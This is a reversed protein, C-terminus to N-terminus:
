LFSLLPSDFKQREILGLLVIFASAFQLGALHALYWRICLAFDRRPFVISTLPGKLPGAGHRRQSAKMQVDSRGTSLCDKERLLRLAGGEGWGTYFRYRGRM